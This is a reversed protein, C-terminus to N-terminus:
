IYDCIEVSLDENVKFPKGCGYILNSKFLKDCIKKSSHPNIQHMNSKLVAHRFIKCNIQQILIFDKCHPCKIILM